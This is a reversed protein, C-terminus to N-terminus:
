RDRDERILETSDPFGFESPNIRPRSRIRNLAETTHQFDQSSSVQASTPNLPSAQQLLQIVVDNVSVNKAIALTQIHHYLEEPLNEIQLTTM